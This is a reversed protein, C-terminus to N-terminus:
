STTVGFPASFVNRPDVQGKISSLRQYNSAYYRQKWDSLRDEIYNIYGGYNWTSPMSSIMSNLVGDIFTFGSQPFPTRDGSSAYVQMVLLADRRAFSTSTSSVTSIKSNQGGWLGVGIFWYDLNQVSSGQNALYSMFNDTAQKTLPASDPVLLSRAYFTDTIDPGNMDLGGDPEALIRVSDIWSGDGDIHQSDPNPLGLAKVFPGMLNQIGTRGDSKYYGGSLTLSVRGQRSGQGLVMELGLEGPLSNQKPYSQYVQFASSAQQATLTNWEYSFILSSPPQAYTTSDISTIIGFSPGAGRFAWYLDTQSTPSAYVRTGNALVVNLGQINDLALGWMRSAFGYGGYTAHGGIGVYPCTGHSMARGAANLAKAVDGLRNGAEITAIKTNSNVTIAKMNAMDVVLVGSKGGLGNAVYSHGGSRASVPLNNTQAIQMVKSVDEATKPYAVAAPKFTFRTNFARSAGAYQNDGPLYATIGAKSFDGRLDAFVFGLQLTLALLKFRM